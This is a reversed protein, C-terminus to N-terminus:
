LLETSLLRTANIFECGPNHVTAVEQEKLIEGHYPILVEGHQTQLKATATSSAVDDQQTVTLIREWM